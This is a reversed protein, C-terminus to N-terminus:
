SSPRRSPHRRRPNKKVGIDLEARTQEIIQQAYQQTLQQYKQALRNISDLDSSLKKINERTSLLQQETKLITQEKETRYRALGAVAAFAIAVSLSFLILAVKAPKLVVAYASM